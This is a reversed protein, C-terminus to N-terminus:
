EAIIVITSEHEFDFDRLPLIKTQDYFSYCHRYGFGEILEKLNAPIVGAADMAIPNIELIITPKRESLMREAGQFFVYESGEIDVKLVINGPLEEWNIADDFKRVPVRIKKTNTTANYASFISASGSSYDPIYLDMEGNQDAGAFEYIQWNKSNVRSTAKLISALQPQPEIAIVLGKARVIESAIISFSGYNAGVDIFTDGESLIKKQIEFITCDYNLEYVFQIFRPDLLNLYVIKGDLNIPIINEATLKLTLFRIKEFFKQGYIVSKNPQGVNLLRCYFAFIKYLIPLQLWLTPKYMWAVRKHKFIWSGPAKSAKKRNLVQGLM